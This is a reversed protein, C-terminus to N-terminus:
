DLIRGEEMLYVVDFKDLYDIRHTIVVLTKEKAFEFLKEHLLEDTALDINSTAEDLCIVDKNEVIIRLLNILQKEGNSLNKLKEEIRFDLYDEASINTM